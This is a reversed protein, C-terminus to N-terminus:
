SVTAQTDQGGDLSTSRFDLIRLQDITFGFYNLLTITGQINAKKLCDQYSIACDTQYVPHPDFHGPM